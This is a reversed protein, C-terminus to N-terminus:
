EEDGWPGIVALFLFDGAVLAKLEVVECGGDGGEGGGLLGKGVGNCCCRQLLAPWWGTYLICGGNHYHLWRQLLAPWRGTFLLAPVTTTTCAVPRYSLEGMEGKM